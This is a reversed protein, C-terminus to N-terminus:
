LARFHIGHPMNLQAPVQAQLLLSREDDEGGGGNQASLTNRLQSQMRQM